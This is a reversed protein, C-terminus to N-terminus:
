VVEDLGIFENLHNKVYNNGYEIIGMAISMKNNM